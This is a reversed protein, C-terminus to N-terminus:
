LVQSAHSVVFSVAPQVAEESTCADNRDVDIKRPFWFNLQRPVSRVM